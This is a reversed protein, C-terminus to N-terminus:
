KYQITNLVKEIDGVDPTIDRNGTIMCTFGVGEHEFFIYGLYSHNGSADKDLYRAAFPCEVGNLNVTSNTKVNDPFTDDIVKLLPMEEALQSASKGERATIKIHDGKDNSFSLDVFSTQEFNWGDPVGISYYRTEATGGIFLVHDITVAETALEGNEDKVNKGDENTVLVILNGNEDRKAAGGEETVAAVANNASDTVVEGGKTKAKCATFCTLVLVSCLIVALYKKM